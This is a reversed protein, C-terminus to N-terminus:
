SKKWDVVELEVSRRGAFHNITPHYALSIPGSLNSLEEHWGGGGFAVARLKVGHQALLLSLHREGGGIKKPPAALTVDTTCLLPRANGEGFPALADIQGLAKLTLAALPTEADIQLEAERPGGATALQAAECFAARFAEIASDEVKLGAAQAHGGFGILHDSCSALANYLNFGNVSRASGTAHGTGLKDQSLVVVPRHYKEALRGAVIGIVGPHWGREALVLAADNDPDFQEKVQKSAALYISRELSQRTANLGDIYEALEKARAEDLTTLLEVALRAQGLRGAANLRPALGFAIDESALSPKGNLKAVRLLQGLGVGPQDKLANLGFRVLIRNEDILPVVDAVTGLAALTVSQVLFERLRPQVKGGGSAQQCLAWALKFAVASGCLGDFPYEGGPTRPHVVAAARPWRLGPQHHDTIILELGLEAALDAEDASSIGCDVTVVTNTGRAALLRLTEAQLGYGDTLRDPIHYKVEGGLLQIARLLIATATMGDVDYDGHVVIKKKEGIAALLRQAAPEVGALQQPERLATLKPDLFTRAAVPDEIGRCILLQAVVAPVGATRELDAVRQPDHPLIRWRKPM